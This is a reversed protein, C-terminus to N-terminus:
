TMLASQQLVSHLLLAAQAALLEAALVAAWTPAIAQQCM